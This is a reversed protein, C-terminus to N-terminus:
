PTGKLLRFGTYVLILVGFLYILVLMVNLISRVLVLHDAPRRKKIRILPVGTDPDFYKAYAAEWGLEEVAAALEPWLEKLTDVLMGQPGRSCLRYNPYLYNMRLIRQCARELDAM